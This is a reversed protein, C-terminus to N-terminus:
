GPNPPNLKFNAIEADTFGYVTQIHLIAQELKDLADLQDGAENGLLDHTTVNTMAPLGDVLMLTLLTDFEADTIIKGDIGQWSAALGLGEALLHIANNLLVGDSAAAEVGTRTRHIYHVARGMAAREWGSLVSELATGLESSCDANGAYAQADILAAKIPAMLGIQHAYSAARAYTGAPVEAPAIPLAPNEVGLARAIVDISEPTVGEDIVSLAYSYFVGNYAGKEVLQRTELARENFIRAATGDVNSHWVGGEGTPATTWDWQVPTGDWAALSADAHEVFMANTLARFAESSVSHLSPTGAEFANKMELATPPTPATATTVPVEAVKMMTGTLGAIATLLTDIDTGAGTNTTFDTADYEQGPTVTCATPSGAAGGENQGGTGNTTGGTSPSGGTEGSGGTAAAGGTGSTGGTAPGQNGDDDGCGMAGCLMVAAACGLLTGIGSDLISKGNTRM